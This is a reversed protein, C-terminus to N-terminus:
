SVEETFDPCMQFYVEFPGKEDEISICLPPEIQRSGLFGEGCHEARSAAITLYTNSYVEAMHAAEHEWDAKSDQLICLCDIWIYGISLYRVIMIADQLTRPLIDFRIASEHDRLNTTTTTSPLSAGWCYSLAAYRGIQGKSTQLLKCNEGQFQDRWGQHKGLMQNRGPLMSVDLVRTPLPRASLHSCESHSNQCNDFWLLMQKLTEPHLTERFM